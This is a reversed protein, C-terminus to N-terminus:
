PKPRGDSQLSQQLKHRARHMLSLVTGRPCDLLEGIERATRGELAALFLVAREEPRLRGLARRLTGNQIKLDSCGPWISWDNAGVECAEEAIPGIEILRERRHLDVFRNRIATFLYAPTWPGNAKLLSLCADQVLDEAKTSEHTLSLAFRYGRQALGELDEPWNTKMM